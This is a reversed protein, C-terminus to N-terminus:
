QVRFDRNGLTELTPLEPKKPIKILEVKEIKRIHSVYKQSFPLEIKHVERLYDHLKKLSANLLLQM